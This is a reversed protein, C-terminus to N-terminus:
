MEMCFFRKKVKCDDTSWNASFTNKKNVRMEICNGNRKANPAFNTFTIKSKSNAEVFDASELRYGSLWIRNWKTDRNMVAYQRAKIAIKVNAAQSLITPLVIGEKVCFQNAEEWTMPSPGPQLRVATGVAFVSLCFLVFALLNMTRPGVFSQNGSSHRQM